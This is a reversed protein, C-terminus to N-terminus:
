EIYYQYNGLIVVDASQPIQEEKVAVDKLVTEYPVGEGVKRSTTSSYYVQRLHHSALRSIVQLNFTRIYKYM